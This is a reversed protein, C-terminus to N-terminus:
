AAVLRLHSGGLRKPGLEQSIQLGESGRDFVLRAADADGIYTLGPVDFGARGNTEAHIGPLYRPYDFSGRERYARYSGEFRRQMHPLEDAKCHCVSQWGGLDAIAAHIAPDDFVVSAYAGVRSAAQFVKGWALPAAGSNSGDIQRVIDAPRPPFQGRDPDTVHRSLAARVDGIEYRNLALFWMALTPKELEPKGYMGVVVANLMEAFEIKTQTDVRM